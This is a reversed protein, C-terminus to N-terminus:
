KILDTIEWSDITTAERVIKINNIHPLGGKGCVDKIVERVREISPLPHYLEQDTNKYLIKYVIKTKM